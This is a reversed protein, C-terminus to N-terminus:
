ALAALVAGQMVALPGPALSGSSRAYQRERRQALSEGTCSSSFARQIPTCFKKKSLIFTGVVSRLCLSMTLTRRTRVPLPRRELNSIQTMNTSRSVLSLIAVKALFKPSKTSFPLGVAVNLCSMGECKDPTWLAKIRYPNAIPFFCPRPNLLFTRKSSVIFVNQM